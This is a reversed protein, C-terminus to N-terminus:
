VAQNGAANGDMQLFLMRESQTVSSSIFLTPPPSVIHAFFLATRKVFVNQTLEKTTIKYALHYHRTCTNEFVEVTLTTSHTLVSVCRCKFCNLIDM